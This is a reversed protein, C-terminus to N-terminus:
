QAKCALGITDPYVQSYKKDDQDTIFWTNNSTKYFDVKEIFIWGHFRGDAETGPPPLPGYDLFFAHTREGDVCVKRSNPHGRLMAAIQQEVPVDPEVVAAPAAAVPPPAAPKEEKKGCAVLGALSLLLAAGTFYANLTTM